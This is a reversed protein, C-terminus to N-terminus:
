IAEARTLLASIEFNVSAVGWSPERDFPNRIYHPGEVSDGDGVIVVALRFKDGQNFAYLMENRTVTVTTAGKVRGKVEIHRPEPQKGDVTPPYSTLDWGCKAASVDEVRCGRAEEAGRVAKMAAQEIRARAAADAAFTGAVEYTPEDGRKQNLLGAPIVLAGGLVVPTGNVVHRMVRLERKRNELRGELDSITRRVNELNLRVDKGIALDDNLKIWRDQWFSIEKTLREHVAALTKDVQAIRRNAVDAFHEPVLTQAALGVARVEQNAAAWPADLVDKIRPRESNELPILDLHPAWGAFSASGDPAVKVFQLRKSLVTGDGSKVEHILLFLLWPETSEDAPDVFIAGQRLLNAYKELIIDTMSLMLPHGPHMLVARSMGPKDLPQVSDREFCIREYRKLVPDQERRNRGTIRRDRERIAAPVHTIEFRGAERPHTAGGRAVFAKLFFSRVFFPQLRRAEAKEMEEKVAFLRDATMTEQALANRNLLSKL